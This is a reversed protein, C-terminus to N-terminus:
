HKRENKVVQWKISWGGCGKSGDHTKEALHNKLVKLRNVCWEHVSRKEARERGLRQRWTEREGGNITQRRKKRRHGCSTNMECANM